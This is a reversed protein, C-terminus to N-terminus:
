AELQELEDRIEQERDRLEDLREGKKPNVVAALPGIDDKKQQIEYLMGKLELIRDRVSRKNQAEAPAVSERQEGRNMGEDLRERHEDGSLSHKFQLHGSLGRGDKFVDGCIPCEPDKVAM